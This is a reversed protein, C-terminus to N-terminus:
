AKISKEKKCCMFILDYLLKFTATIADYLAACNVRKCKENVEKVDEELVTIENIVDMYIM